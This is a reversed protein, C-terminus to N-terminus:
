CKPWRVPQAHEWAAREAAAWGRAGLSGTRGGRSTGPVPLGVRPARRPRKLVEALPGASGAGVGPRAGPAAQARARGGARPSGTGCTGSLLHGGSLPAGRGARRAPAGHDAEALPGAPRVTGRTGAGPRLRATVGDALNREARRTVSVSM